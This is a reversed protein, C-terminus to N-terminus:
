VVREKLCFGVGTLCQQFVDRSRNNERRFVEGHRLVYEAIIRERVAHFGVRRHEIRKDAEGM